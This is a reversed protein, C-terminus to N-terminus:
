GNREAKQGPSKDEEAREPSHGRKLNLSWCANLVITQTQSIPNLKTGTCIFGTGELKYFVSFLSM